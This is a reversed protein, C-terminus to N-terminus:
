TASECGAQHSLGMIWCKGRVAYLLRLVECGTQGRIYPHNGGGYLVEEICGTDHFARKMECTGTGSAVYLIVAEYIRNLVAKEFVYFLKIRYILEAYVHSEYLRVVIKESVNVRTGKEGNVRCQKRWLGAEIRDLGHVDCVKECGAQLM